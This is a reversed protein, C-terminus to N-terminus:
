RRLLLDHCIRVITESDSIAAAAADATVMDKPAGETWHDPYLSAAAFRDLREACALLRKVDSSTGLELGEILKVCVNGVGQSDRFQYIAKLAKEAAQQAAFCSWEHFDGEELHRASELDREAQALWDLERSPM